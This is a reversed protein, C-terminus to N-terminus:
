RGANQGEAKRGGEYIDQLHTTDLTARERIQGAAALYGAMARRALPRLAPGLAAAAVAAMGLGLGWSGGALASKVISAM